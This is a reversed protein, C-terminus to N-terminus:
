SDWVASGEYDKLTFTKELSDLTIMNIWVGKSLWKGDSVYSAPVTIEGTKNQSYRNMLEKGKVMGEAHLTWSVWVERSTWTRDKKYSWNWTWYNEGLMGKWFAKINQIGAVHIRTITETQWKEYLMAMMSLRRGRMYSMGHSSCLALESKVTDSPITPHTCM